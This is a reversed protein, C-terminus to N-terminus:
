WRAPSSSFSSAKPGMTRSRIFPAASSASDLSYVEHAVVRGPASPAVAPVPDSVAGLGSVVLGDFGWHGRLPETLMWRNEGAHVGNIKNYSATVTRPRAEAVTREFAAPTTERLPREDARVDIRM